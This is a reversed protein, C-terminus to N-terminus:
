LNMIIMVFSESSSETLVTSHNCCCSGRFVKVLIHYWTKRHAKNEDINTWVTLTEQINKNNILCSEYVCLQKDLHISYLIGMIQIRSLLLSIKESMLFVCIQYIREWVSQIWPPSLVLIKQNLLCHLQQMHIDLRLGALAVMIRGKKPHQDSPVKHWHQNWWSKLLGRFSYFLIFCM